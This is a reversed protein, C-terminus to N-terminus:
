RAILALGVALALVLEAPRRYITVVAAVDAVISVMASGVSAFRAPNSKMLVSHPLVGGGHAMSFVGFAAVPVSAAILVLAGAKWRGNWLLVAFAAVVVFLGEDRTAVLLAAPCAAGGLHRAGDAAILRMVSWVFAVTIALQL